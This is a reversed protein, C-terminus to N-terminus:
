PSNGTANRSSMMPNQNKESDLVGLRLLHSTSGDAKVEEIFTEIHQAIGRQDTPSLQNIFNPIAPHLVLVPNPSLGPILVTPFSM